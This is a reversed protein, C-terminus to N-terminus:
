RGPPPDRWENQIELVEKKAWIHNGSTMVDVGYELLADRMPQSPAILANVDRCQSRTFSRALVRGLKRPLAPVYHHLYEEFFTHYTAVCPVGALRAFRVGAYHAIFPTHSHVLDVKDNRFENLARTLARWRM